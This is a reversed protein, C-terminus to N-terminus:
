QESTTLEHVSETLSAQAEALFGMLYRETQEIHIRHSPSDVRRVAWRALQRIAGAANKFDGETWNM